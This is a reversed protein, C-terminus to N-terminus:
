NSLDYKHINDILFPLMVFFGMVPPDFPNGASFFSFFFTICFFIFLIYYEKIYKIYLTFVKYMLYLYLLLGLVGSYLLVSLFSNHPWDSKTKDSYFYYGYWNLYAFGGGFIKKRWSYEKTFIQWGFQWRVTRPAIFSDSITDIVINATYAHYTTDESVLKAVWNRIPDPDIQKSNTSLLQPLSFNLIGSQYFYTVSNLTLSQDTINLFKNIIKLRYSNVQTSDISTKHIKKKSIINRFSKKQIKSKSPDLDNQLSDKKTLNYQPYAFVVYGKLNSFNDTNYKAWYLYTNLFGDSTIKENLSLLQWTGKKSLDYNDRVNIKSNGIRLLEYRLEVWEGDFEESVFCFVSTNIIDDLSVSDSGIRTYSYADDRWPSANKRWTSANCTSDMLYGKTNRPIRDSGKGKLPYITKHVRTGWGSDPDSSDPSPPWLKKFLEEYTIDRNLITAYSFIKATIEQKRGSIDEIGFLELSKNKISIDAHYIFLYSFISLILLSILYYRTASNLRQLIYYKKIWAVIQIILIILIIVFFIFIGRRSGSISIDISFIILLLNYGLKNFLSKANVLKFLVSIFGLFVPILAFNKDLYIGDEVSLYFVFPNGFLANFSIICAFLINLQILINLYLTFQKKTTIILQYFYYFSLLIFINVLDKFVVLYPKYSWLFTLLLVITLIIILLYNRTFKFLTSKIIAWYYVLSYMCFSFYVIIFPYKFFPIATRFVFLLSSLILLFIEVKKWSPNRKKNDRFIQMKQEVSFVRKKM